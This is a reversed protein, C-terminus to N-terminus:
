IVNILRETAIVKSDYDAQGGAICSYVSKIDSREIVSFCLLILSLFLLVSACLWLSHMTLLGITEDDLVQLVSSLGAVGSAHLDVAFLIM